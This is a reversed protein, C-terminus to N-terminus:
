ALDEHTERLQPFPRELIALLEVGDDNMWAKTFCYRAWSFDGQQLWRMGSAWMDLPPKLEANILWLNM